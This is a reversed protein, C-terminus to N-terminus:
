SIMCGWCGGSRELHKRSRIRPPELPDFVDLPIDDEPLAPHLAWKRGGVRPTAPPTESEYSRYSRYSVQFLM